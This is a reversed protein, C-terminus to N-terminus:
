TENLWYVCDKASVGPKLSYPCLRAGARDAASLLGLHVSAASPFICRGKAKPKVASHVLIDGSFFRLSMCDVYFVTLPMTQIRQLLTTHPIEGYDMNNHSKPSDLSFLTVCYGLYVFWYLHPLGDVRM